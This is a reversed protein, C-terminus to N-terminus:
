LFAGGFVCWVRSEATRPRRSAGAAGWVVCRTGSAATEARSASSTTWITVALSIMPARVGTTTNRQALWFRFCTASPSCAVPPSPHTVRRRGRRTAAVVCLLVSVPTAPRVWFKGEPCRAESHTLCPEAELCRHSLRVMRVWPATVHFCTRPFRRTGAAAVCKHANAKLCHLLSSMAHDACHKEVDPACAHTRICEPSLDPVHDASCQIQHLPLPPPCCFWSSVHSSTVDSCVFLSVECEHGADAYACWLSACVSFSLSMYLPHPTASWCQPTPPLLESVCWASVSSPDTYLATGRRCFLTWYVVCMFYVCVSVCVLLPSFTCCLCLCLPSQGVLTSLSSPAGHLCVPGGPLYFLHTHHSSHMPQVVVPDPDGSGAALVCLAAAAAATAFLVRRM